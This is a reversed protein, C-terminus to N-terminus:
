GVHVQLASVMRLAIFSSARSFMEACRIGSLGIVIRCVCEVNSRFQRNAVPCNFPAPIVNVKVVLENLRLLVICLGCVLFKKTVSGTHGNDAVHNDAYLVAVAVGFTRWWSSVSFLIKSLSSSFFSVTLRKLASQPEHESSM